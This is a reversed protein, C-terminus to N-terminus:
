FAEGLGVSISNYGKSFGYDIGVNTNSGKNFKIRLGTGAAPHWSTFITGSGSVTNANAFVVFGLLGNETIDRRYEGELYFLSRGRYRNQDMGRGSRNYPDWGVSPLDLYPAKSNLVTWYYTWIALTNQQSKNAPNLPIYKRMDIYVSHWSDNSGLFGPNVRYVFNAYAGPLPNISNNRTDYVANLSIGSSLSSGATGYQYGTYQKLDVNPDDSKINSHYDLNYGVGAFFYPTIRKLASQYFRIYRYDVLTKESSNHSSGLGWTYQPYVLFRIDGQINWTNDPLWISSRLPLGFRSHFNWYPAFSVSSLNTTNKPGLYVGATTSTVLARGTGGPAAGSVPLVSFYIRKKNDPPPAGPKVHFIGKAIDILDTKGVTDVKADKQPIVSQAFLASPIFFLAVVIYKYM